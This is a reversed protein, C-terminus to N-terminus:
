HTTASYLCKLHLEVLLNSFSVCVNGLVYILGLINALTKTKPFNYRATPINYVSESLIRLERIEIISYSISTSLVTVSLYSAM